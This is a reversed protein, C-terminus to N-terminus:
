RLHPQQELTLLVALPEDIGEHHHAAHEAHEVDLLVDGREVKGVLHPTPCPVIM